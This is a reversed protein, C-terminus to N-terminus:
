PLRAVFGTSGEGCAQFGTYSVTSIHLAIWRPKQRVSRYMNRRGGTDFHVVRLLADVNLRKIVPHVLLQYDHLHRGCAYVM